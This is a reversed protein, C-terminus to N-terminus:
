KEAKVKQVQEPLAIGLAIAQALAYSDEWELRTLKDAPEDLFGALILDAGGRGKEVDAHKKISDLLHKESCGVERAADTLTVSAEVYRNWAEGYLKTIQPATLGKPHAKCVTVRRVARLYLTRDDDLLETLDRLYQSELELVVKKDNDQLRLVGTSRFTKRAWDDVPKLFDKDVGHCRMCSINAHIRADKGVRLGSDDPGIKDPASEAAVGKNDSLFTVFLGNPLFGYWEEVDHAYEGDRLNRKAQGKDKQTFTDLTGWVRRSTAGFAIVQRNQQSVGSRPVVAGWKAFVREAVKKDTGTLKFFDDRKKLALFDYYGAGEQVNRISIQRASQVFFWEANLVPAETYLLARLANIEKQPLWPAPLDIKAGKKKELVYVDREYTKDNREDYGGPWYVDIKADRLLTAKVHFFVDVAALKEYVGLRKDWGYERVDIRLVDWTILTIPYLKGQDSLLNVHLNLAILFDNYYKTPTAVWLYRFYPAEDKPLLLADAYAVAVARAPSTTVEAPAAATLILVALLTKVRVGAGESSRRVSWAPRSRRCGCGGM